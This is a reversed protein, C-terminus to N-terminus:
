LIRYVIGIQISEQMQTRLSEKTNYVLLFFLNVNFWENFKATLTNKWIVDWVSLRDFGSFLRLTSKYIIDKDLNVNLDSVSEIGTEFKFYELTTTEANDTYRDAFKNAFSEEFALGLRTKFVNSKSYFVGVSQTVYGPDFFGSIVKEPTVKYDYGPTIPTRILLSIFPSQYADYIDFRFVSQNYMENATTKIIDPEVRSRGAAAAFENEFSWNETKYKMKWNIKGVFSFSNEGGKSWDQFAIQSLNLEVKLSPNWRNLTSDKEGATICNFAALFFFIFLIAQKM